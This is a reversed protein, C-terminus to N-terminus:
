ILGVENVNLLDGSIRSKKASVNGSRVFLLSKRLRITASHEFKTRVIIMIVRFNGYQKIDNIKKDQDDM